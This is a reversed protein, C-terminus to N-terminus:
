KNLEITRENTFSKLKIIIHQNPNELLKVIVDMTKSEVKLENRKDFLIPLNSELEKKSFRYNTYINSMSIYLLEIWNNMIKSFDWSNQLTIITDSLRKLENLYLTRSSLKKAYYYTFLEIYGTDWNINTYEKIEHNFFFEEIKKIGNIKDIDDSCHHIFGMSFSETEEIQFSVVKLYDDIFSIDISSIWGCIYNYTSSYQLRLIEIYKSFDFDNRRLMSYVLNTYDPMNILNKKDFQHDLFEFFYKIFRLMVYYNKFSTFYLFYNSIDISSFITELKEFNTDYDLVKLIYAIDLYEIFRIISKWSTEISDFANSHYKLNDMIGLVTTYDNNAKANNFIELLKKENYPADQPISIHINLSDLLKCIKTKFNESILTIDLVTFDQSFFSLIHISAIMKDISEEKVSQNYLEYAMFLCEKIKSINPNSLDFDAHWYLSTYEFLIKSIKSFTKSDYYNTKKQFITDIEKLMNINLQIGTFDTKSFSYSM